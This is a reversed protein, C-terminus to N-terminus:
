IVERYVTEGNRSTRTKLYTRTEEVEGSFPNTERTLVPIRDPTGSGGRELSGSAYNTPYAVIDNTIGGILATDNQGQVQEPFRPDTASRAASGGISQGPLPADVRRDDLLYDNPNSSPINSTKGPIEVEGNVMDLEFTVQPSSAVSRIRNPSGTYTEGLLFGPVKLTITTRIIREDDSFDDFNNGPEFGSELYAVFTYGKPTELRFTRGSYSQMNTMIAMTLNNMQQVYQTWITVDYTATVFQVPPIELVEVINNDIKPSLLNGRRVGLPVQSATQRSAVRGPQAGTLPQTKDGELFASTSPMDDSNNLGLKNIIRQYRPDKRSLSKKITHPVVQNSAMGMENEAIVSNRMISVVPLILANNKDRLPKKRAILAFREGGAFIVPVRSTSNKITHFLPLDRNFLNFVARDIDEITCSPVELVNGPANEGAQPINGQSNAELTERTTM